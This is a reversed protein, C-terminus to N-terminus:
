KQLKKKLSIILVAPVVFYMGVNLLITGIGYGLMEEESDIEVYNLLTLSTLLPTLTVKVAEKFIPNEREYDAVQPSFSYYFQNFGTMFATGSETTMVKGDRLERLFQVQPAMESGFAATAILCGGGLKPIELSSPNPKNNIQNNAVDILAVNFNYAWLRNGGYIVFFVDANKEIAFCLKSDQVPEKFTLKKSRYNEMHHSPNFEDSCEENDYRYTQPSSWHKEVNYREYGYQTDAPKPEFLAISSGSIEKKEGAKMEGGDFTVHIIIRNYTPKEVIRFSDVKISVDDDTQYSHNSWDYNWAYASPVMVGIMAVALVSLLLIKV